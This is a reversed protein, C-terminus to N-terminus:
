DSSSDEESEGVVGVDCGESGSAGSVVGEQDSRGDAGSEGSSSSTEEGSSGSSGGGHGDPRAERQQEIEKNSGNIVEGEITNPKDDYYIGTDVVLKLPADKDGRITTKNGYKDPDNKEALWKLTRVKFENVHVDEKSETENMIDIIRDHAHEASYERALKVQEEFDPFARRWHYIAGISPMGSMKAIATLTKGARLHDCIRKSVPLTYKWPQEKQVERAVIEGTVCDVEVLKKNEDYEYFTEQMFPLIVSYYSM